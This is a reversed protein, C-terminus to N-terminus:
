TYSGFILAVPREGRFASLTVQGDGAVLPLTFDPAPEGPAAVGEGGALYVRMLEGDALFRAQFAMVEDYDIASDGGTDLGQLLLAFAGYESMGAVVEQEMALGYQARQAHAAEFEADTIRADFNEDYVGFAAELEDAELRLPDDDDQMYLGLLLQAMLMDVGDVADAFDAAAIWGDGDADLRVFAQEDRGYEERSVRGDGDADYRAQLYDWVHDYAEGEHQPPPPDEAVAPQPADTTSCAACAALALAFCTPSRHQM